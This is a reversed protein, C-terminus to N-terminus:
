QNDLQHLVLSYKVHLLTVLLCGRHSRVFLFNLPIVSRVFLRWSRALLLLSILTMAAIRVIRYPASISTNWLYDSYKSRFCLNGFYQFVGGEAADTPSVRTGARDPDANVTAMRGILSPKRPFLPRFPRFFQLHDTHRKLGESGTGHKSVLEVPVRRPWVGNSFLLM